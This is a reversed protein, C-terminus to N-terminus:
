PRSLVSACFMLPKWALGVSPTVTVGFTAEDLGAPWSMGALKARDAASGDLRTDAAWVRPREDTCTVLAVNLMPTVPAVVVLRVLVTAECTTGSLALETM